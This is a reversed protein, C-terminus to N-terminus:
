AGAASRSSARRALRAERAPVALARQPDPVRAGRARAARDAGRGRGRDDRRAAVRRDGPGRLHRRGRRRAARRGGAPVHGPANRGVFSAGANAATEVDVARAELGRDLAQELTLGVAAVQPETFVVRPSGHKDASAEVDRGLVNAICIWAQYKGMHTLLSRGNVDGIAYLWESGGVRMRDDVELYGDAEVGVTALGLEATRPRRGVAVLLEDGRLEEGGELLLSVRGGEGRSAGVAKAGTRVEVGGAELGAAVQESAFPEEAAILRDAAEVVTVSAGLSSWAQALEVGVVGGGLILLRGPVSKATTAQRNTWPAVDALGDIPPIAATTGTAIVVARRATLREDGVVVTREGDLAARGRLLEIGRDDLWPIMGSDDLDHIVEDRRALVLEPDLKGDVLERVGPVRQTEDLLEGPRLLAKSPMCAYFSCEGGILEQEVIATKLEAGAARGAAVEGAPGAGIVIVDFERASM